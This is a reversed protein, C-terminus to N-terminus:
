DQINVWWSKDPLDEPNRDARHQARQLEKETFLLCRENSGNSDEVWVATYTKKANSFVKRKTNYVPILRGAKVMCDVLRCADSM